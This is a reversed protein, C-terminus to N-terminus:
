PCKCLATSYKEGIDLISSVSTTFPYSFSGIQIQVTLTGEVDFILNSQEFDSLMSVVQKTGTNFALVTDVDTKTGSLFDLTKDGSCCEWQGVQVGDHKFVTKAATLKMNFRNPNHLTVLVQYDAHFGM